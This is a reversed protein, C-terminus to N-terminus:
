AGKVPFCAAQGAHLPQGVIVCGSAATGPNSGLDTQGWAQAALPWAAGRGEGEVGAGQGTSSMRAEHRQGGQRHRRSHGGGGARQLGRREWTQTPPHPPIRWEQPEPQDTRAKEPRGWSRCDARSYSLAWKCRYPEPKRFGLHPDKALYLCVRPSMPARYRLCPTAPFVHALAETMVCWGM